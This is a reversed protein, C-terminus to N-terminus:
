DALIQWGKATRGLIPNEFGVAGQSKLVFLLVPEGDRRRVRFLNSPLREILLDALVLAPPARKVGGSKNLRGAMEEEAIKLTFPRGSSIAASEWGPAGIAVVQTANQSAIASALTERMQNLTKVIEEIAQSGPHEASWFFTKPFSPLSLKIAKRFPLRLPGADDSKWLDPGRRSVIKVHFDRAEVGPIATLSVEILNEGTRFYPNLMVGVSIPAKSERVVVPVGNVSVASRAGAIQLQAYYLDIQNVKDPATVAQAGSAVIVGSLYFAVFPMKNLM